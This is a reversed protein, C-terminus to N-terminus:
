GPPRVRDTAFQRSRDRHATFVGEPDYAARIRHLRDTNAGYYASDSLGPEPFNPYAGGTGYPHTVAYSSDLWATALTPDTGGSVTVSHKVLFQADRHPFATADEPTRNYAGAWPSFDLERSEGPRRDDTLRQVLAAAPVARRFYESRLYTFGNAPEPGDHPDMTALWRKTERHSGHRRTGSVPAVGLRSTLDELVATGAAASGLVTGFVTVALARRVDSSTSFVVSAAVADEAQPAWRQWGDLVDAASGAPFRMQFATVDPAPVTAFVLETVVGPAGGGRLAWFLDAEHEDHCTVSRGDALVVTAARLRDCTLGYTRGLIGLGGGLTLGAIGVTPGCGAPVTVGHAALADYVDGLLAGGGVVARGSSVTVGSMPRVDVLVGDTTSWGAFSHGGARVAIRRRTDRAYTVAETVDDATACRVVAAPRVDDFRAIEPRRLEDYDAADPLVIRGAM